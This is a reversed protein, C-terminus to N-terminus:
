QSSKLSGAIEELEDYWDKGFKRILADQLFKYVPVKHKSGLKCAPKCVEWRHYNLAEYDGVKSVRIPYLHCSLPKRFDTAGAKWAKEIGCSLIGQEDRYSFNCEGTPLCTTVEEKDVDLEWFGKKEIEALAEPTLYPKIAPLEKELLTIEDRSLPAGFEGEVCCAGKCKSLDCIFHKEILDESVLASGHIIM